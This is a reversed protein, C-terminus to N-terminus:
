ETALSRSIIRHNSSKCARLRFTTALNNRTMTYSSVAYAPSIPWSVVTWRNEKTIYPHRTNIKSCATSTQRLVECTKGRFKVGSYIFVWVRAHKSDWALKEAEKNGFTGSRDMGTLILNLSWLLSIKHQNGPILEGPNRCLLCRKFHSKFFHRWGQTAKLLDPLSM